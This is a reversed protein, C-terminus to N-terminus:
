IVLFKGLKGSARVLGLMIKGRTIQGSAVDGQDNKSNSHDDQDDDYGGLSNVPLDSIKTTHTNPCPRGSITACLRGRTRKQMVHDDGPDFWVFLSKEGVVRVAYAASLQSWCSRLLMALWRCSSAGPRGEIQQERM